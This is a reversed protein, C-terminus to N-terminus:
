RGRRRAWAFLVLGGLCIGFSAPEPTSASSSAQLAFYVNENATVVTAYGSLTKAIAFTNDSIGTAPPEFLDVGLIDVGPSASSISATFVLDDPLLTGLLSFPVNVVDDSPASYGTVIFDPGIQLGVPSGLQFLRLVADFTGASGDSFFQVTAQSGFRETGALHIQDGIETFGNSKYVLTDGTDTTVNSYITSATAPLALLASLVFRITQVRGSM